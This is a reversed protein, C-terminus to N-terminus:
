PFDQDAHDAGFLLMSQKKKFEARNEKKFRSSYM